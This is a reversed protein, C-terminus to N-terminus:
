GKACKKGIKRCIQQMKVKSNKQQIPKVNTYEQLEMRITPTVDTMLYKAGVETFYTVQLRSDEHKNKQKM